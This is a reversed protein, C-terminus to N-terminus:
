PGRFVLGIHGAAGIVSEAGISRGQVTVTVRGSTTWTEAGFVFSFRAQAPVIIDLGLKAGGVWQAGSDSAAEGEPHASVGIRQAFMEGRTRLGLTPTLPAVYVLGVGTTTWSASTANSGLVQTARSAAVYPVLPADFIDYGVALSAGMRWSKAELGRGILGAGEIWLPRAPPPKSPSPSPTTRDRVAHPIPVPVPPRAPLPTSAAPAPPVVEGVLTAITLGVAKWREALDDEARFSMRRSHWQSRESRRIGVEVRVRLSETGEWSVIAAAQLVVDDDVGAVLSCRGEAVARSCASVLVDSLAPPADPPALEVLVVPVPM